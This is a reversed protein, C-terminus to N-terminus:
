RTCPGRRGSRSRRRRRARLASVSRRRWTTAPAPRSSRTAASRRRAARSKPRGSCARCARDGTARRADVIALLDDRYADEAASFYGTGSADGRDTVFEGTLRLTLWDHPLCVRAVRAWVSPSALPAAVVAEHDHVRRGAGFRVGRGVGGARRAAALLWRRTPAGVRHREVAEGPARRRRGRRARRTRAAARRGVVADVDRRAPTGRPPSCRRGGRQPDQESRPPTTPPHPAHGNASAARGHRRRASRGQTSQTSSDVGLVVPM